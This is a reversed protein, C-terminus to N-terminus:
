IQCNAYKQTLVSIILALYNNKKSMLYMPVDINNVSSFVVRMIFTLKYKNIWDKIRSMKGITQSEPFTLKKYKIFFGRVNTETTKDECKTAM